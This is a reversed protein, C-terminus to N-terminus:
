VIFMNIKQKTICLVRVNLTFLYCFMFKCCFSLSLMLVIAKKFMKSFLLKRSLRFLFLLLFLILIFKCRRSINNKLISCNGSDIRIEAPMLIGKFASIFLRCTPNPNFGNRSRICSFFLDLHDQSLRYSFLYKIATLNAPVESLLMTGLGVLTELGCFLGLFGIKQQSVLLLQGTQKKLLSLYIQFDKVKLVVSPLNELTM